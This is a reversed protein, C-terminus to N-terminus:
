RDALGLRERALRRGEARAWERVMAPDPFGAPLPEDLPEIDALAKLAQLPFDGVHGFKSGSRDLLEALSVRQAVAWLDAVDRLTARSIVAGLKMLGLDVLSAVALGDIAEEPDVLPYPYWFFQLQTADGARVFLYGDRATEVTLGPDLARLSDLLDRRGAPALRAVASMLDLHRVGRHDLYLALGASGALYFDDVLGRAALRGCWAQAAASLRGLGPWSSM